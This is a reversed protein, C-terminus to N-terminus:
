LRQAIHEERRAHRVRGLGAAEWRDRQWAWAMIRASRAARSTDSIATSRSLSSTARSRRSRKPAEESRLARISWSSSVQLIQLLRQGLRVRLRSGLGIRERHLKRAACAREDIEGRADAARARRGDRGVVQAQQPPAVGVGVKALVDGLSSRIGARQTTILVHSHALRRRGRSRSWRASGPEM